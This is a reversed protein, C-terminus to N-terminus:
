AGGPDGDLRIPVAGWPLGSISPARKVRFRFTPESPAAGLHAAEWARGRRLNPETRAMLGLADVLVIVSSESLEIRPVYRM